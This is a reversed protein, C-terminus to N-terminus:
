VNGGGSSARIMEKIASVLAMENNKRKVLPQVELYTYNDLPMLSDVHVGIADAVGEIQDPNELEFITTENGSQMSALGDVYGRINRLLHSPIRGIAEALAIKSTEVSEHCAECLTELTGDPYDWPNVGKRYFRHHVHLQGKGGECYYGTCKFGDREMIRLRKEQWEPRKLLDYYSEAVGFGDSADDFSFRGAEARDHL